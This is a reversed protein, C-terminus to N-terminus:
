LAVGLLDVDFRKATAGFGALVDYDPGRDASELDVAM